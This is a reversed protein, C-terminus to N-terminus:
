EIYKIRSITLFYNGASNYTNQVVIKLYRIWYQDVLFAQWAHSDDAQFTGLEVWGNETM